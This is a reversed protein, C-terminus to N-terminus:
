IGMARDQFFDFLPSARARDGARPERQRRDGRPDGAQQGASVSRGPRRLAQVVRTYSGLAASEAIVVDATEVARVAAQARGALQDGDLADTLSQGLTHLEIIEPDIDARASLTRLTARGEGVRDTRFLGASELLGVVVVVGHDPGVFV